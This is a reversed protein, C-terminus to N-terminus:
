YAETEVITGSLMSNEDFNSLTRVLVKGILDRAVVATPRAYFERALCGSM